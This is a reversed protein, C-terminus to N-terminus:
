VLIWLFSYWYTAGQHLATCNIKFRGNNKINGTKVLFSNKRDTTLNVKLQEGSSSFCRVKNLPVGGKKLTAVLSFERAEKIVSSPEYQVIPLQLMSVKQKFADMKGYNHNMPYRPLAEIESFEGIPGSLQSFGVLKHKSFLEKKIDLSFEGFPYAFLRPPTKLQNELVNQARTLDAFFEETYKKRAQQDFSFNIKNHSHTHNGILVDGKSMEVLQKWSLYTGPKEGIFKTSVFVTFPMKYKRLLPWATTYVSQFGDDFSIGVVKPSFDKKNQVHSSIKDLGWVQFGNKSLYDLHQKFLAPSISTSSPTTDSVHHYALVVAGYPKTVENAYLQFTFVWFFVHKEYSTDM